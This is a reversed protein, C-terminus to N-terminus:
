LFQLGLKPRPLLKRRGNRKERGECLIYRKYVFGLVYLDRERETKTEREREREGRSSFSDKM